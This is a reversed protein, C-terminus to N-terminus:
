TATPTPPVYMAVPYHPCKVFFRYSKLLPTKLPDKDGPDACGSNICVVTLPVIVGFVLGFLVMATAPEVTLWDGSRSAASDDIKLEFPVAEWSEEESSEEESSGEESSADESSGEESSADESSGEESSADESSGEEAQAAEVRGIAKEIAHLVQEFDTTVREGFSTMAYREEIEAKYLLRFTSKVGEVVETSLSETSISSFLEDLGLYEKSDHLRQFANFASMLRVAPSASVASAPDETGTAFLDDSPPDATAAADNDDETSVIVNETDSNESSADEEQAAEVHSSAEELADDVQEMGTGEETSGEEMSGERMSGEGTSGETSGEETSGEETSGEETSGEETSGEETSGEETSGEETSGEETSGEETSAGGEEASRMIASIEDCLKKVETFTRLAEPPLSEPQIGSFLDDFNFDKDLGNLSLLRHLASTLLDVQSGADEPPSASVTADETGTALREDSAPDDANVAADSDDETSVRVNETDSDEIAKDARDEDETTVASDDGDGADGGIVIGRYAGTFSSSVGSSLFADEEGNAIPVPTPIDENSSASPESPQSPEETDQPEARLKNLLDPISSPVSHLVM